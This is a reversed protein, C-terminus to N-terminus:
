RSAPGANKALIGCIIVAFALLRVSYVMPQQELTHLHTALILREFTFLGFATGFSLFLRDGTQRYARLFFMCCVLYGMFIAGSLFEIM